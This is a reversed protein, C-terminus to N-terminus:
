PNFLHNFFLSNYLRMWSANSTIIFCGKGQNHYIILSYILFLVTNYCRTHNQQYNYSTGRQITMHAM